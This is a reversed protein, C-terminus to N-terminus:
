SGQGGPKVENFTNETKDYGEVDSFVVGFRSVPSNEEDAQAEDNTARAPGPNGIYSVIDDRTIENAQGENLSFPIYKGQETDLVFDGDGVGQAIIIADSINSLRESTQVPEYKNEGIVRLLQM